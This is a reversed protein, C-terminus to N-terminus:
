IKVSRLEQRRQGPIRLYKHYQPQPPVMFVTTSGMELIWFYELSQESMDANVGHSSIPIAQGAAVPLCSCIWSTTLVQRRWLSALHMTVGAGSSPPRVACALMCPTAGATCRRAQLSAVEAEGSRCRTSSRGREVDSILDLQESSVEAVRSSNPQSSDTETRWGRGKGQLLQWGEM